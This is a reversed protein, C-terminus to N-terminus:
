GGNRRRGLPRLAAPAEVLYAFEDVAAATEIVATKAADGSQPIFRIRIHCAHPEERAIRGELERTLAHCEEVTVQSSISLQLDVEWTEGMRRGRLDVVSVGPHHAALLQRIGDIRHSPVSGDMLGHISDWAIVAGIRLVLLSVLIAALHDAAVWGLISLVIGALVALSSYADGRNDAAAAMIAPSNTHEAVCRLYRHMLEATGASILAGFVAWVEPVQVHGSGLHTVNYWLMAAAGAMLSIGIFNASLFQVKGYGYPFASNAPRSSLKVSALNIGKTLFDGFSHLSHAQLAMSGSLVGLATKFVALALANFMDLWAARDRCEQCKSPKM